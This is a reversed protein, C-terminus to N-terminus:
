GALRSLRAARSAASFLSAAMSSRGSSAGAQGGGAAGPRPGHLRTATYGNRVLKGPLIVKAKAPREPPTKLLRNPTCNWYRFLLASFFTKSAAMALCFYGVFRLKYAIFSCKSAIKLAAM